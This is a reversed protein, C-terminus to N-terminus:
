RRATVDRIRVDAVDGGRVNCIFRYQERRSDRYGQRLEITGEVDWGDGRRDVDVIDRIDAIRAISLGEDQAASACADVADDEREIAPYAAPAPASRVAGDAGEAFGRRYDAAADHAVVRADAAARRAAVALSGSMRGLDRALRAQDDAATQASLPTALAVLSLALATRLM